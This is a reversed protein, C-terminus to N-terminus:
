IIQIDVPESAPIVISRRKTSLHGELSEWEWWDIKTERLQARLSDGVRAGYPLPHKVFSTWVEGPHLTPFADHDGLSIEFARDDWIEPTCAKWRGCWRYITPCIPLPINFIISRTQGSPGPHYYIYILTEM